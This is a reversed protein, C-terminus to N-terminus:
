IQFILRFVPSSVARSTEHLRSALADEKEKKGALKQLLSIGNLNMSASTSGNVKVIEKVTKEGGLLLEKELQEATFVQSQSKSQSQIDIKSQSQKLMAFLDTATGTGGKASGGTGGNVIVTKTSTTTTEIKSVEDSQDFQVELKRFLKITEHFEATEYFWICKIDPFVLALPNQLSSMRSLFNCM